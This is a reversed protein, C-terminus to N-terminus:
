PHPEGPTSQYGGAPPGLYPFRRSTAPNTNKTGDTVGSAAGDPTYSPDVLPITLGAVARLEVTVVDDDVRRGNPFGALDGGLLGLTNPHKAPPIAVNLRLMDALTTGTFNQFGPVIGKPIGTLLIAELDIRPKSYSALHPFVGPYLVPLLAQLEPHQVFKAYESDQVPRQANWEDKLAMPVIVENFLPMGLRSVQVPRGQAIWKGDHFVRSAHRHASTWIGLVSEEDNPNMPTSGDSTLASIPVQLVIAHVNFGQLGNVGAANPLPILHAENFPRLAGLDFVSGLDVHFADARQGAFVRHGGPLDHVAAKTFTADYNPTSRVGVNVPPVTLGTGLVRTHWRDGHRAHREVRYYQPRNWTSDGIHSIVGTNYLFTNPNRTHQTFAFEYVTDDIADGNTDLRITYRVSPDFSPFNPGSAPAELPIYNAV